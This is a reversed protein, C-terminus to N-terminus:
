SEDPVGYKAILEALQKRENTARVTELEAEAARKAAQKQKEQDDEFGGPDEFYAVPIMLGPPDIDWSCYGRYIVFENDTPGGDVSVFEYVQATCCFSPKTYKVWRDRLPALAAAAEDIKDIIRDREDTLVRLSTLATLENM